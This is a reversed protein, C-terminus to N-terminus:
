KDFTSGEYSVIRKADGDICVDKTHDEDNPTNAELALVCIEEDV